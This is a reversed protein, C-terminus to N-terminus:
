MGTRVFDGYQQQLSQQVRHWHWNTDWTQKVSWWKSLKAWFPGPFHRLPHWLVRYLSIWVSLSGWFSFTLGTAAAIGLYFVLGSFVVSSFVIGPLVLHDVEARRLFLEHLSVALLAPVVSM